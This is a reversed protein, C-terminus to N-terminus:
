FIDGDLIKLESRALFSKLAGARHTSHARVSDLFATSGPNRRHRTQDCVSDEYRCSKASESVRPVPSVALPSQGCM